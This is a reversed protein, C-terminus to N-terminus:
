ASDSEILLVGLLDATLVDVSGGDGACLGSGAGTASLTYRPPKNRRNFLIMIQQSPEGSVADAGVADVTSVPSRSPLVPPPTRRPARITIRIRGPFIDVRSFDVAGVVYGRTRISTTLLSEVYRHRPIRRPTGAQNTQTVRNNIRRLSNDNECQRRM